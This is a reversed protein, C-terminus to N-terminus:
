DGDATGGRLRQLLWARTRRWEKEIMSTSLGLLRAVEGNELGGFFKLEVIRAQRESRAALEELAEDLALLEWPAQTDDGPIATLSSDEDRDRQQRRRRRAHDVLIQRMAKSAVACFHARGTWAGGDDPGRQAAAAGGVLKAFAEHVLATPQLTHDAPQNRFQAAARSRLEDYVLPLLEDAAAPDGDELRRLLEPTPDAPGTPSSAM